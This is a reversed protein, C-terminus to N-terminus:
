KVHKWRKGINIDTIVSRSVNYRKAIKEHSIGLGLEFRIQPIDEECLLAKSNTSGKGKSIGKQIGTYTRGKDVRDQVNALNDGLFLHTIEICARVDCHHLVHQGSPIWGYYQFWAVRHALETKGEYGQSGYGNRDKCGFFLVCPKNRWDEM